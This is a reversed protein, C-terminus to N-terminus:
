RDVDVWGGAAASRIIADIVREFTLAEQFDPYLTEEGAIGGAYIRTRVRGGTEKKWREGMRRFAKDWISGEPVLTALKIQAGKPAPPAPVPDSATSALALTLAALTIM